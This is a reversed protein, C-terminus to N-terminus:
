IWQTVKRSLKPQIAFRAGKVGFNSRDGKYIAMFTPTYNGDIKDGNENTHNSSFVYHNGQRRLKVPGQLVLTVNNRNLIGRIKTNKYDIGYVAKAQLIDDKIERAVTTARTIGNPFMEQVKKIFEQTEPHNAIVADTMGGWQQFDSSKSGEKHSLWMIENGNPDTIHFDSKPVGPTKHCQSVHYTVGGVKVPVYTLGTEARISQIQDNIANIERMEIGVGAGGGPPKGGFEVTKKFSTLKYKMTKISADIFTMNTMLNTKKAALIEYNTKDFLLKVKRGNALEFVDGNKYKEIFKQLRWDYKLLETKSLNSM